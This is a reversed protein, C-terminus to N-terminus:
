EQEPAVPDAKGAKRFVEARFADCMDALTQADVESLPIAPLAHIGDQRKGPPVEQNVFNPVIWPKLKTTVTAM